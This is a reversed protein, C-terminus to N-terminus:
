GLWPLADVLATRQADDLMATRKSSGLQLVLAHKSGMASWSSTAGLDSLRALDVLPKPLKSARRMPRDFGIRSASQVITPWASRATTEHFSLLHEFRNKWLELDTHTHKAIQRVLKVFSDADPTDDSGLADFRASGPVLLMLATMQHFAASLALPSRTAARGDHEICAGLETSAIERPVRKKEPWWALVAASLADYPARDEPALDASAATTCGVAALLGLPPTLTSWLTRTTEDLSAM